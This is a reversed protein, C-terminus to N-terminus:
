LTVKEQRDSQPVPAHAADRAAHERHRRPVDRSRDRRAPLRASATRLRRDGARARRARAARRDPRAPDPPRRGIRRNATVAHLFATAAPEAAIGHGFTAVAVAVPFALPGDWVTRVRELAACPWAARTADIFARGQATTELFREKSPAFAAAREAVARLAADDDGGTARYAHIFFVADCFGSGDSLTAALWSGLTEADKIDGAEVAWEIGSSYSFAGVPYAPSLWAMLRYLASPRGSRRCATRAPRAACPARAGPQPRPTPIAADPYRDGHDHPTDHHHAYAGAEPYFPAEIPTVRAGLGILMAALVHDHRIRLAEGAIQMETHRNGLHWALRALAQPVAATIEVLAEPRGDVRVITGDDLLLGDGDRLATARPLDLLFVTGNEGTLM